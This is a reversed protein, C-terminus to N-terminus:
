TIAGQLWVVFKIMFGFCSEACACRKSRTELCLTMNCQQLYEKQWPEGLSTEGINLLRLAKLELLSRLIDGGSVHEQSQGPQSVNNASEICLRECGDLLLEELRYLGRLSSIETVNTHGLDLSRLLLLNTVESTSNFSTSRLNLLELTDLKVLHSFDTLGACHAINLAKLAMCNDAIVTLDDINTFSIDLYLLSECCAFSSFGSPEILDCRSVDIMKQHGGATNTITSFIFTTVDQKRRPTLISTGLFRIVYDHSIQM